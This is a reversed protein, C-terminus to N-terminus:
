RIALAQERVAHGRLVGPIKTHSGGSFLCALDELNIDGCTDCCGDAGSGANLDAGGNQRVTLDGIDPGGYGATRDHVGAVLLAGGARVEPSIWGGPRRVRLLDYIAANGPFAVGGRM